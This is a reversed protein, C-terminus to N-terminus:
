HWASEPSPGQGRLEEIAAIIRLWVNHGTADGAKELDEAQRQAQAEAKEGHQQIMLWAADYIETESTM